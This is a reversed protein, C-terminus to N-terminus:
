RYFLPSGTLSDIEDQSYIFIVPIQLELDEAELNSNMEQVNVPIDPNPIPSEDANDEGQPAEEMAVGEPRRDVVKLDVAAVPEANSHSINFPNWNPGISLGHKELHKKYAYM